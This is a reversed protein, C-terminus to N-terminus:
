PLDELDSNDEDVSPQRSAAEGNSVPAGAGGAGVEGFMGQERLRLGKRWRIGKPDKWVAFQKDRLDNGFKTSSPVHEFGQAECWGKFAAYLDKVATRAEPDSTDCWESLWEDLPASASWYDKLVEAMASPQPISRTELWKLAGAILWNLIGSREATLRDLVQDIPVYGAQGTEPLGVKWQYLKFRRRFGKDDSPAKPVKNCESHMKFRPRYTLETKEGVGRATILSGTVQKITEGDWISRAKPEDCTVFRIDGRLRVLDSRHEAGGRENGQLFTRVSAHRYYDGHLEALAQHTTSKGDNGKGQHVYFAQDSTLGTLTYGYLLQFAELQEVDPTLLALRERWFACEAKPQYEVDALQMLMDAPDHPRCAVDWKEGVREFRLTGNMVNYLLPDRDFDESLVALSSKAQRLMGGTMGASGSKVAHGRLSGALSKAKKAPDDEGFIRRLREVRRDFEEPKEDDAERTLGEVAEAEIRIHGIVAHALRQAEIAGREVDFRRGDYWAWLQLDDVWKLKGQALAILRESNGFDSQQKFALDIPDVVEVSIANRDLSSPPDSM